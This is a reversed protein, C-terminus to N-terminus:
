DGLHDNETPSYIYTYTKTASIPTGTFDRLIWNLEIGGFFTPEINSDIYKNPPDAAILRKAAGYFGSAASVGM